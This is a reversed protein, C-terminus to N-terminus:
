LVVRTPLKGTEKNGTWPGLGSWGEPSQLQRGPEEQDVLAWGGKERNRCKQRDEGKRCPM